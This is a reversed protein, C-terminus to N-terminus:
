TEQRLVELPPHRTVGRNALLGTLLTIGTVGATALVLVAVPVVARTEFVFRALLANAVVALGCGVLAALLGLLAYEVL